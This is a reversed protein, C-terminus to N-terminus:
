TSFVELKAEILKTPTRRRAPRALMKESMNRGDGGPTALHHIFNNRAQRPFREPFTLPQRVDQWRVLKTM